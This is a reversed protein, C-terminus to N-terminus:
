NVCRGTGAAYLWPADSAKEKDVLTSEWEAIQMKPEAVIYTDSASEQALCSQICAKRTRKTYDKNRGLM